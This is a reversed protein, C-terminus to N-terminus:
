AVSRSVEHWLSGTIRRFVLLTSKNITTTVAATLKFEAGFTVAYGGTSEARLFVMIEDAILTSLITPNAVTFPGTITAIDIFSGDTLDATVTAGMTKFNQKAGMITPAIRGNQIRTLRANAQDTVTGPGVITVTGASTGDVYYTVEGGGTTVSNTNIITIDGTTYVRIANFQKKGTGNVSYVGSIFCAGASDVRLGSQGSVLSGASQYNSEVHFGHVSGNFNLLYAGEFWSIIATGGYIHLDAVQSYLGRRGGRMNPSFLFISSTDGSGYTALLKVLHHSEDTAAPSGVEIDKIQGEFVGRGIELCTSYGSAMLGDIIFGDWNQTEGDRGILQFLTGGTYDIDGVLNLDRFVARRINATALFSLMPRFVEFSAGAGVTALHEYLRANTDSIVELVTYDRSAIKIHYGESLETLFSTGTGTVTAYSGGSAVAVTGTGATGTQRCWLRGGLGEIRGVNFNNTSFNIRIASNVRYQGPPIQLIAGPNDKWWTLAAEIVASDDTGTKTDPDYDGKAGWHKLNLIKQEIRKWRGAGVNPQYIYGLNPTDTAAAEYYFQGGGGDGANYYGSVFAQYGDPIAAIDVSKLAAISTVLIGNGETFVGSIPEYLQIAGTIDFGMIKAARGAASPMINGAGGVESEPFQVARDTVEKLQQTIMTLKDLAREHTEAPFRDNYVYNVQQTISIDRKITVKDGIALNTAITTLTGGAEDAAGALTYDTGLILVYDAVGSRARIAKIHANELFYFPIPLAQVAASLTYQIKATSTAISM